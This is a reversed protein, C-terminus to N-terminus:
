SSPQPPENSKESGAESSKESSYYYYLGEGGIFAYICIVLGAITLFFSLLPNVHYVLHIQGIRPLFLFILSAGFLFLFMRSFRVMSYTKKKDKRPKEM